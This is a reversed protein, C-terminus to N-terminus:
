AWGNRSKGRLREVDALESVDNRFGAVAGKASLRDVAAGVADSDIDAVAV